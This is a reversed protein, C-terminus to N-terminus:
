RLGKVVREAQEVLDHVLEGAGKAVALPAGQGAWLAPGGARGQRAAGAGEPGPAAAPYPLIAGAREVDVLFRNVFGRATRGGEAAGGRAAREATRRGLLASRQSANAGSEQCALFATGMQVAAAGLAFAAVIGRGDMIGGAAVVPVRVADVVQPVLAMTGFVARMPEAGAAHGGAESGEAVVADVGAAALARAEEVVRATGLVLAGRARLDGVADAPPTGWAFSVVSVQEELVVALQARLDAAPLEGLLLNVGFTHATRSRVEEIAARLAAPALWGAALSGLGGAESVAAALAPTGPGGAMPALLIPHEVGLRRALAKPWM